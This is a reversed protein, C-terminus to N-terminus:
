VQGLEELILPNRCFAFVQSEKDFMSIDNNIYAALCLRLIDVM